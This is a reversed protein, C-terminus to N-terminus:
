RRFRRAIGARRSAIAARRQDATVLPTAPPLRGVVDAVALVRCSLLAREDAGVSRFIVIGERRGETDLWNQVGPDTASIVIRARRDADIHLQQENLSTQRNAFDLSEFWGTSYLQLSWYRARPEELEVLLAEGDGLSWRGNGYVINEAGGKVGLRATSIANAV